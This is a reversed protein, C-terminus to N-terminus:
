PHKKEVVFQHFKYWPLYLEEKTSISEISFLLVERTEDNARKIHPSDLWQVTGQRSMPMQASCSPM